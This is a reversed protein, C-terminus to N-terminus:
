AILELRHFSVVGFCILNAKRDLTCLMSYYCAFVHVEHLVLILSQCQTGCLGVLRACAFLALFHIGPVTDSKVHTRGLVAQLCMHHLNQTKCVWYVTVNCLHMRVTLAVMSTQLCSSDVYSVFCAILPHYLCALLLQAFLIQNQM